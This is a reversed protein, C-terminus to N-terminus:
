RQGSSGGYHYAIECCRVAHVVCERGRAKALDSGLQRFWFGHASARQGLAGDLAALRAAGAGMVGLRTVAGIEAEGAGDVALSM